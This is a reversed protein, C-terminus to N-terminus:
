RRSLWNRVHAGRRTLQSFELVKEFRKPMGKLHEVFRNAHAASFENSARAILFSECDDHVVKLWSCIDDSFFFRAENMVVYHPLVQNVHFEKKDTDNLLLWILIKVDEYIAFRKEFLNYRLQDLAILGQRRVFYAAVLAAIVTAVPAAFDKLVYYM